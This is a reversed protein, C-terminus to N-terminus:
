SPRILAARRAAARSARIARPDAPDEPDPRRADSRSDAAIGHEPIGSLLKVAVLLADPRGLYRAHLSIM